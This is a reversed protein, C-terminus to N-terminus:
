RAHGTSRMLRKSMPIREHREFGLSLYFALARANRREVQLELAHIGAHACCREVHALAKRGAGFGRYPHEIFLETVTAQRGGFELDFGFTAIVCGIAKRRYLILWTRGLTKDKLLLRLGSVLLRRQSPIHDFRYYAEILRLLTAADAPTAAEISVRGIDFRSPM